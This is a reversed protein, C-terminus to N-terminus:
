STKTRNKHDIRMKIFNLYFTVSPEINFYKSKGAWPKQSATMGITVEGVNLLAMIEHMVETMGAEVM